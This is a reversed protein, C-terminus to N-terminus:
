QQAHKATVRHNCSESKGLLVSRARDMSMALSRSNSRTDSAPPAALPGEDMGSARGGQFGNLIVAVAPLARGRWWMAFAITLCATQVGLGSLRLRLTFTAAKRRTLRVQLESVLRNEGRSV